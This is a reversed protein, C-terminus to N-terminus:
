LDRRSKSCTSMHIHIHHYGPFAKNAAEVASNVEEEGSDPITAWVEGTAPNFSDLRDKCDIFEGNIFNQVQVPM